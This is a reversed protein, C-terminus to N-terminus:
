ILPGRGFNGDDQEMGELGKAIKQTVVLQFIAIGEPTNVDVGETKLDDLLLQVAAEFREKELRDRKKAIGRAVKAKHMAVRAKQILQQNPVSM